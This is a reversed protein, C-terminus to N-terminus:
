AQAALWKRQDVWDLPLNRALHTASLAASARDQLIAEIIDPALFALRIMLAINATSKSERIAIEDLSGTKGSLLEDRWGRAKHIAVLLRALNHRQIGANPADAVGEAGMVDRAPAAHGLRCPVIIRQSPPSADAADGQQRPLAQEVPLGGSGPVATMASAPQGVAKGIPSRVWIALQGEFVEVRDFLTAVLAQAGLRTGAASADSTDSAATRPPRDGSPDSVDGRADWAHALADTVIAEVASAPIRAPTGAREPTGELLARSVYYRYRVGRKNTHSPAMRNGASDFIRGTLLSSMRHASRLDSSRQETLLQQVAEFTAMDLLPAHEGPYYQGKHIIEGVYVRNRLLGHLSGPAFPIGGALTGKALPRQKTRVGAARLAGLTLTISGSRLYTAFILRVTKAEAEDIVLKRDQVRYGLPVPGGMFMGKKKSAAIKDRIREATVEREFQAFSLLVNLTLRGMSTTTNFSQTVSVFSVGRADFIEVIKAFDTLARTLRDVKYVVVVDIRGAAVDDLLRKLGPREMSGGSWGGDDYPEPALTWGEQRQSAIYAECAERQAQLSNFDQELGEESSKRTYIACRLRRGKGSADATASAARRGTTISQAAKSKRPEAM